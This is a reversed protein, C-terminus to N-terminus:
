CKGKRRHDREGDTRGKEREGGSETKGNERMLQTGLSTLKKLETGEVTEWREM